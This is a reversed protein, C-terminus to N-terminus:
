PQELSRLEEDLEEPTLNFYPIGLRNAFDIFEVRGMGLLESARGGSLTGRRYLELVILEKASEAPTGNLQEVQRMLDDELQLTLTNM